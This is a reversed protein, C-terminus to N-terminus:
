GLTLQVRREREIQKGSRKNRRTLLSYGIIAATAGIALVSYLRLPNM